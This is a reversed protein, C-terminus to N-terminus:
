SVVQCDIVGQQEAEDPDILQWLHERILRNCRPCDDGTEDPHTSYPFDIIDISARNDLGGPITTNRLDILLRVNM